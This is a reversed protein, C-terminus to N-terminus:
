RHGVEIETRRVMFHLFGRGCRLGFDSCNRIPRDGRSRHGQSSGSVAKEGSLCAGQDGIECLSLSPAFVEFVANEGNEGGDEM